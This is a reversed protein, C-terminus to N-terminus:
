GEALSKQVVIVAKRQLANVIAANEDLDDMPLTALPLRAQQDEPLENWLDKAEQLVEAGEPDDAVDDVSPGAYVLHAGPVHDAFGQIVGIPDKLRDWRSVQLVYPDGPQLRAEELLEAEHEIAG